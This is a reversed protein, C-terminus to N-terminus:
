EILILRNQIDNFIEAAKNDSFRKKLLDVTIDSLNRIKEKALLEVITTVEGSDLSGLIFQLSKLDIQTNSISLYNDKANNNGKNEVTINVNDNIFANESNIQLLFRTRANMGRHRIKDDFLKKQNKILQEHVKDNQLIHQISQEKNLFKYYVREEQSRHTILFYSRYERAIIFESYTRPLNYFLVQYDSFTENPLLFKSFSSVILVVKIQQELLSQLNSFSRTKMIIKINNINSILNNEPNLLYNNIDEITKKNNAIVIVLRKNQVFLLENLLEKLKLLKPHVIGTNKLESLQEFLSNFLSIEGDALIVSSLNTSDNSVSNIMKKLLQISSGISFSEITELVAQLISIVKGQMILQERLENENVNAQIESIFARFNKRLSIPHLISYRQLLDVRRKIHNDIFLNIDYLEHNLPVIIASSSNNKRVTKITQYDIKTILMNKCVLALEDPSSFNPPNLAIIRVSFDKNNKLLITAIKTYEHKSKALKVDNFFIASIESINVIERLIDNFFLKGTTVILRNHTYLGKRENISNSSAILCPKIHNVALSDFSNNHSVTNNLFYHKVAEQNNFLVVAKKTYQKSLFYSALYNLLHTANFNYPLIILSNDHAVSNLILQFFLPPKNKNLPDNIADSYLNTNSDNTIHDLNIRDNNKM